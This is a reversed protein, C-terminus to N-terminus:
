YQQTYVSELDINQTQTTFGARTSVCFSSRPNKVRKHRFSYERHEEQQLNWRSTVCRPVECPSVFRFSVGEDSPPKCSKYGITHPLPPSTNKFHACLFLTKDLIYNNNHCLPQYYTCCCVTWRAHACVCSYTCYIIVAINTMFIEATMSHLACVTCTCNLFHWSASQNPYKPGSIYLANFFHLVSIISFGM